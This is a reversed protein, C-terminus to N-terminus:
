KGGLPRKASQHEAALNIQRLGDLLDGADSGEELARFGYRMRGPSLERVSQISAVGSYIDGEFSISVPFTTGIAHSGSAIVAFGTSSVDEVSLDREEGVEALISASPTPVRSTQRSEASIPDGLPRLRAVLRPEEAVVDIVRVRQQVFERERDFFCFLEQDVELSIPDEGFVVTFSQDGVETVTSLRLLFAGPTPEQFFINSGTEFM